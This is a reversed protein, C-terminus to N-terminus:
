NDAIQELLSAARVDLAPDGSIFRQARQVLGKAEDFRQQMLRIEALRLWMDADRPSIRLARETIAAARELEGSSIAQDVSQMLSSTASPRPAPQEADQPTAPRSPLPGVFPENNDPRPADIAPSSDDERIIAPTSVEVPAPSRNSPPSVCASLMLIVITGSLPKLRM